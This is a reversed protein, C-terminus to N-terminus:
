HATEYHRRKHDRSSADIAQRVATEVSDLRAAVFRFDDRFFHEFFVSPEGFRGSQSSVSDAGVLYIMTKGGYFAEILDPRTHDEVVVEVPLNAAQEAFFRKLAAHDAYIQNYYPVRPKPARPM